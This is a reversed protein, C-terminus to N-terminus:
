NYLAKAYYRKIFATVLAKGDIFSTCEFSKSVEKGDHNQHRLFMYKLELGRCRHYEVFAGYGMNEHPTNQIFLEYHAITKESYPNQLKHWKIM